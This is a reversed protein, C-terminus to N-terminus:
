FAFGDARFTVDVAFSVLFHYIVEHDDVSSDLLQEARMRSTRKRISRLLSKLSVNCQPTMIYHFSWELSVTELSLANYRLTMIQYFGMELSITECDTSM